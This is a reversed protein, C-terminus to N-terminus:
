AKLCLRTNEEVWNPTLEIQKNYYWADSIIGTLEFWKDNVIEILEFWQDMTIEKNALMEDLNAKYQQANNTIKEQLKNKIEWTIITRM